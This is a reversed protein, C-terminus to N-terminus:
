DSFTGIPNVIEGSQGGRQQWQDKPFLLMEKAYKKSVSEANPGIVVDLLLHYCSILNVVKM